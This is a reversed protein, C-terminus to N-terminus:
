LIMNTNMPKIFTVAQSSPSCIPYKRKTKVFGQAELRLFARRFEKLNIERQEATIRGTLDIAPM